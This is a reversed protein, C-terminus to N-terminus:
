QKGQTDINRSCDLNEHGQTTIRGRAGSVLVFARSPKMDLLLSRPSAGAIEINIRGSGDWALRYNAPEGIPVQALAEAVPRRSGSFFEYRVELKDSTTVSALALRFTVQFKSDDTLILAIVSAWKKDLATESLTLQGRIDGKEGLGVFECDEFRGGEVREELTTAHTLPALTLAALFTLAISRM